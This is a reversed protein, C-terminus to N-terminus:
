LVRELMQSSHHIRISFRQEIELIAADITSDSLIEAEVLHESM